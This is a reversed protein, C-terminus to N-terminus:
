KLEKELNGAKILLVLGLITILLSLTGLGGWTILPAGDHKLFACEMVACLGFGFLSAGIGGTM